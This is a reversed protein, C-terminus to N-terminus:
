AISIFRYLRSLEVIEAIVLLFDCEAQEASVVINDAALGFKVAVVVAFQNEVAAVAQCLFGDVFVYNVCDQGEQFM